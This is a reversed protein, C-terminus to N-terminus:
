FLMLSIILTILELNEAINMLNLNPALGSGNWKRQALKQVCVMHLCFRQEKMPVFKVFDIAFCFQCKEAWNFCFEQNESVSFAM